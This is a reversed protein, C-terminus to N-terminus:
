YQNFLVVYFLPEYVNVSLIFIIGNLECNVYPMYVQGYDVSREM